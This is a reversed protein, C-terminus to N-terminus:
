KKNTDRLWGLNIDKFDMPRFSKLTLRSPRRIKQAEQEAELRIKEEAITDVSAVTSMTATTDARARTAAGTKEDEPPPKKRDRFERWEVSGRLALFAAGLGLGLSVALLAFIGGGIKASAGSLDPTSARPRLNHTTPLALSLSTQCLLLHLLTNINPTARFSLSM